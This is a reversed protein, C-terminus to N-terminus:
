QAGGNPTLFGRVALGGDYDLVMGTAPRNEARAALFVYGEAYDSASPIFGLPVIQDAVAEFGINAISQGDLGLSKPGSLSTLIAGPAVANVRVRPALEFALQRVLGKGAHKAATYLPGGGNSLSAANSLTLIMSGESEILAAGSARAGLLYGLVDIEFIEAFGDRLEQPDMSMLSRNFDWIGANAIYCDLKGNRDYASKVAAEHAAYDRVDGQIFNVADGLKEADDAHPGRRDLVTCRAGERVFAEVIALGLGSAGGTLYVNQDKLRGM